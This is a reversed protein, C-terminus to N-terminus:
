ITTLLCLSNSKKIFLQRFLLNVKELVEEVKKNYAGRLGAQFLKKQLNSYLNKSAKFKHELQKEYSMNALPAVLDTANKIDVMDETNKKNNNKEEKNYNLMSEESVRRVFLQNHKVKMGQFVEVGKLTDQESTFSIYCLGNYLKM